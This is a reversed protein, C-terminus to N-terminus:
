LEHDRRRRGLRERVGAFATLMDVLLDGQHRGCATFTRQFPATVIARSWGLDILEDMNGRATRGCYNCTVKM